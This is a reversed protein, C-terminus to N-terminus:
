SKIIISQGVTPRLGVFIIKTAGHDIFLHFGKKLTGTRPIASALEKFLSKENFIPSPSLKQSIFMLAKTM